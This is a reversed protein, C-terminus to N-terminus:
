FNQYSPSQWGLHRSNPMLEIWSNLGQFFGARAFALPQEFFSPGLGGESAFKQELIHPQLEIWASVVTLVFLIKALGPFFGYLEADAPMMIRVLKQAVNNELGQLLRFMFSTVFARYLVWLLLISLNIVLFLMTVWFGTFGWLPESNQPVWAPIVEQLRWGLLRPQHLADTDPYAVTTMWVFFLLFPLVVISNAVLGRLFIALAPIVDRLGRPILYNSFDRIHRVADTDNYDTPNTFPFKGHNCNMTATLCCGIYGGGSVTSLYDIGGVGCYRDIAQLAGLCVSASRIGGGSLALGTLESRTRDGFDDRLFRRARDSAVYIRRKEISLRELKYVDSAEFAEFDAPGKLYDHENHPM